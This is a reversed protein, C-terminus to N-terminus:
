LRAGALNAPTKRAALDTSINRADLAPQHSISRQMYEYGDRLAELSATVIDGSVGVTRCVEGTRTNEMEIIVRTTAETAAKPNLIRVHYNSLNVDRLAQFRPTLAQRLATDLANVPGNGKSTQTINKGAIKVTVRANSTDSGTSKGFKVSTSTHFKVIDISPPKPDLIEMALLLFSGPANDFAYGNAEKEKVSEVIQTLRRDKEDFSFGIDRLLAVVNSRGAQNSMLIRRKNGVRRPDIHEYAKPNKNVADVHLGGKHGFADAGVYPRRLDPSRDLLDDLAHSVETMMEMQAESVGTRFGMEHLSPIVSTLSANGCREGLGNITGQVMQCGARVAELSNAVACERDNHAHIGISASPLAAKVARVIDYVENPLTGGNTDCLVLWSAGADHATRLCELAYSPNAKYGDFFHEADFLMEKGKYKGEAISTGILALNEELSIKLADTVHFDSCKGVLCARGTADLVSQLSKDERASQGNRRTMGFAALRAHKLIPPSNFFDIDTQNAGPFGGEIYDIGLKDLWGAITAKDKASFDVGSTQAGDRLTTDYLHIRNDHQQAFM